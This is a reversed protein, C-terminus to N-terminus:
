RKDCGGPYSVGADLKFLEKHSVPDFFTLPGRLCGGDEMRFTEGISTNVKVLYPGQAEIQAPALIRISGVVLIAYRLLM